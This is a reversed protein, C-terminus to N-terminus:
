VLGYRNNEVHFSEPLPWDLDVKFGFHVSNDIWRIREPTVSYFTMARIYDGVEEIHPYKRHYIHWVRERDAEPVRECLGRVQIGRVQQWMRIPAYGALAVHPQQAIHRSHASAPDSVFYFRIDEDPAVYLNVAHPLQEADTTALTAVNIERLFRALGEYVTQLSGDM